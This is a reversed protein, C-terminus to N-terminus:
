NLLYKLPDVADAPYHRLVKRDQTILPVHLQKSLAVFECDYSSCDSASVLQLVSEPLPFHERGRLMRHAAEFIRTADTANIFKKRMHQSLVSCLESRWLVPVHWDPDKKYLDVSVESFESKLYFYALINTDVVIV